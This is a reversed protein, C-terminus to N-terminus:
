TEEQVRPLSLANKVNKSRNQFIQINLLTNVLLANLVSICSVMNQQIIKSFKEELAIELNSKYYYIINLLVQIKNLLKPHFLLLLQRGQNLLSLSGQSMSTNQLNSNQFQPLYTM